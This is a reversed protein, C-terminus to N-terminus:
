ELWSIDFRIIKYHAGNWMDSTLSQTKHRSVFFDPHIPLSSLLRKAVFSGLSIFFSKIMCCRACGSSLVQIGSFRSHRSFGKSLGQGLMAKTQGPHLSSSELNVHTQEAVLSTAVTM